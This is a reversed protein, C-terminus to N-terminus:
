AEDMTVDSVRDRNPHRKLSAVHDQRERRSMVVEADALRRIERHILAGGLHDHIFHIPL